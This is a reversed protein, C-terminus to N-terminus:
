SSVTAKSTADPQIMNRGGKEGVKKPSNKRETNHRIIGFALRTHEFHKLTCNLHEMSAYVYAMRWRGSSISCFSTWLPLQWVWGLGCVSTNPIPLSHIDANRRERTVYVFWPWCKGTKGQCRIEHTLKKKFWKQVMKTGSRGPKSYYVFFFNKGDVTSCLLLYRSALTCLLGSQRTRTNEVCFYM